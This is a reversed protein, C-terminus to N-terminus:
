DNLVKSRYDSMNINRMYQSRTDCECNNNGVGTRHRSEKKNKGNQKREMRSKVSTCSHRFHVVFVVGPGLVTSTLIIGHNKKLRRKQGKSKIM